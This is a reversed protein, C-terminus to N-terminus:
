VKVLGDTASLVVSIFLFHTVWLLILVIATNWSYIKEFNAFINSIIQLDSLSLHSLIAPLIAASSSIVWCSFSFLLSLVDTVYHLRAKNM